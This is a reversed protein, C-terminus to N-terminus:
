ALFHNPFRLEAINCGHLAYAVGHLFIDKGIRTVYFIGIVGYEDFAFAFSPNKLRAMAHCTECEGIDFILIYPREEDMGAMFSFANAARQM